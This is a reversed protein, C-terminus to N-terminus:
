VGIEETNQARHCEGGRADLGSAFDSLLFLCNGSLNTDRSFCFDPIRRKRDSLPGVCVFYLLLIDSFRAFCLIRVFFFCQCCGFIMVVFDAGLDFM